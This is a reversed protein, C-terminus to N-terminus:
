LEGRPAEHTEIGKSAPVRKKTVFWGAGFGAILALVAYSTKDQKLKDNEEKLKKCASDILMSASKNLESLRAKCDPLESLCEVMKQRDAQLNTLCESLKESCVTKNICSDLKDHIESITQEHLTQSKNALEYWQTNVFGFCLESINCQQIACKLIYTENSSKCDIVFTENPALELASVTNLIAFVTLTFLAKKFM